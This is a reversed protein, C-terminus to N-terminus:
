VESLLVKLIERVDFNHRPSCLAFVKVLDFLVDVNEKTIEYILVDEEKSPKGFMDKGNKFSTLPICLYVMAQTGSAYQQKQVSIEIQSGDSANSMFFTPLKISAEEFTIGNIDVTEGREVEIKKREELFESYTGIEELLDSIKDKSILGTQIADFLLVSLEYPHKTKKNAGIFSLMQLKTEKKGAKVESAIADYGIQWELYVDESFNNGRTGFTNGFSLNNKRTKFRFKGDNKAPIEVVIRDKKVTYKM